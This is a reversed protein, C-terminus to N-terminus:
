PGGAGGVTRPHAVCCVGPHRRRSATTSKRSAVHSQRSPVPPNVNCASSSFMERRSADVRMKELAEPEYEEFTFRATSFEEQFSSDWSCSIYRVRLDNANLESAGPAPMSSDRAM